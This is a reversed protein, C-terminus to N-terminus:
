RRCSGTNSCYAQWDAPKWCAPRAGQKKEACNVSERSSLDWRSSQTSQSVEIADKEDSACQGICLMAWAGLLIGFGIIITQQDIITMTSETSPPQSLLTDHETQNTLYILSTNQLPATLFHGGHKVM